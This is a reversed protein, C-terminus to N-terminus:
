LFPLNEVAYLRSRKRDAEIRLWGNRARRASQSVQGGVEFCGPGFCGSVSNQKGQKKKNGKKNGGPIIHTDTIGADNLKKPFSVM